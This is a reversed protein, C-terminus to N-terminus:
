VEADINATQSLFSGLYSFCDVNELLVGNTTISPPSPTTNPPPQYLVKTKSANLKLGLRNYSRNFDNVIIQLDEETCSNVSTDDAYQLGVVSTTTTNTTANLHNIHFLKGNTHYTLQVGSPLDDEIIHLIAALFLSFLIPAIVCGQKVGTRVEIPDMMDGNCLITAQM